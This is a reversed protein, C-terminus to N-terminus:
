GSFPLQSRLHRRVPSDLDDGDDDSDDAAMHRIMPREEAGGRPSRSRCLNKHRELDRYHRAIVSIDDWERTTEQDRVAASLKRNRSSLEANVQQLRAMEGQMQGIQEQLTRERYSGTAAALSGASGIGDSRPAGRLQGESGSRALAGAAQLEAQLEAEVTLGQASSPTTLNSLSATPTM